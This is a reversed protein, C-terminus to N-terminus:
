TARALAHQHAAHEKAAHNYLAEYQEVVNPYSFQQVYSHAWKQWLKRLDEETLLLHLRRAFEETDKPNVMSIEGLEQMVAAYGSNNGAVTVLGCAMAELLVIGFSEGFIAPSCFLDSEGLLRIKEEDSVYGLFQVNPLELEAALLELKERDPGNGAIILSVDSMQKALHEYAQLLYKVGKRHELRGVYLISKTEKPQADKRRMPRKYHKLDIGNPIITIPEDTLGGVYEAAADSVATLHDLYKLVSKLYPTVVKVVTRSMITEPVKAHFTAVNVCKSRSLIQRSLMPVWPEHFHLVDFQETELMQELAETDASASVQTTTHLPSHFDTAQGVFIIGETDMDGIDKPQPTIIRADHGRAVLEKRMARVIEQVGGGKAINYPCVLGIKM